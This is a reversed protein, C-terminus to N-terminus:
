AQPTKLITRRGRVLNTLFTLDLRQGLHPTSILRRLRQLDHWLFSTAQTRTAFEGTKDNNGPDLVPSAAISFGRARGIRIETEAPTTRALNAAM